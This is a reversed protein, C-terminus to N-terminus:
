NTGTMCAGGLSANIVRQVDVVNCQGSGMLAATSCASIGLAQNIAIQVDLTDVKGDGNLDCPSSPALPVASSLRLSYANQNPDNVLVLTDLSPFYQFRGYTGNTGAATQPGNAFSQAVCTKTGADFIYVTNGQNPYGVFKAIGSDYTFGPWDASMGACGTVGPTWDQVRYTPDAGSIDIASVKFTVGDAANGMFIMLKRVPDIAATAALPYAANISLKTYTNTAPNYQLLYNTNGNICFVTQTNPDYACVAATVSPTITTPDFGHVPDQAHWKNDAFTFMWTHNTCSGSPLCGSFSFLADQLPLYVLDNYTHRSTPNGDPDVEYSLSYNWASPDTLRTMSPTQGLNLAYVENGQYDSHGGGWIVMRNRKTDAVAGSWADIVNVCYASFAYPIGGFNNPPCASTLKTNSFQQWSSSSPAAAATLALSTTQSGSNLTATVTATLATSITGATATFAATTAGAAISVTAPVTLATASSSLAVTAGGSGAAQSLTATCSSLAGSSLAGPSCSVSSLVAPGALLVSTTQSGGNLSATVTATQGASLTGATATFTASTALAAVSVTAPITLVLTNSSLAVTVGGSGAAQGLTVTCTASTNSGLSAPACSLSSVLSPNAGQGSPEYAGIAPPNSRPTGWIDTAPASVPTGAALAPSGAQLAFNFSSPTAYYASPSAAVFAPDQNICGSSKALGAALDACTHATYGFGPNPGTGVVGPGSHGGTNWFINNAFTTTSLTTESTDLVCTGAASSALTCMPFLVPPYNATGGANSVFINNRIFNGGLNGVKKQTCSGAPTPCGSTLNVIELAPQATAVGDPGAAGTYFTNNEIVNGTQDYPCIGSSGSVYCDGDYNVIALGEAGVNFSINNRFFSNSVGEMWSYGSAGPVNYVLNQEMVLNTVRGNFQIAPYDNSNYAINRRVYVNSSPITRSGIYIEHQQNPGNNDHFVNDQLTINVLGNFASFGGLGQYGGGSTCELNQFIDDHFTTASPYSATSGGQLCASQTAKVGDIVIWSVDLILITAGPYTAPNFYAAEGPFSLYIVPNGATGSVANFRSNYNDRMMVMHNPAVRAGIASWTLFPHNIDDEVGTSDNGVCSGISAVCNPSATAPALYWIHSPTFSRHSLFAGLTGYKSIAQAASHVGSDFDDADPGLCGPGVGYGDGDKDLCTLTSKGLGNQSHACVAFTLLVFFTKM